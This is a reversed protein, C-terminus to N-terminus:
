RMIRRIPGRLLKPIYSFAQEGARELESAQRSRAAHVAGALHRLEEEGLGALAKPPAAGLEAELAALADKSM